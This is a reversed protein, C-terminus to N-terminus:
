VYLMKGKNIVKDSSDTIVVDEYGDAVWQMYINWAVDFSEVREADLIGGVWVNYYKEM